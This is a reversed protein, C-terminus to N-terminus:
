IFLITVIEVAEEQEHKVKNVLFEALSILGAQGETEDMCPYYLFFYEKTVIFKLM